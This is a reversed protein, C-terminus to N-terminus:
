NKFFKKVRSWFGIKQPTKSEMPALMKNDFEEDLAKVSVSAIKTIYPDVLYALTKDNEDKLTYRGYKTLHYHLVTRPVNLAESAESLSKFKTRDGEPFVTLEVVRSM